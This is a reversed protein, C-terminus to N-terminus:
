TEDGGAPTGRECYERVARLGGLSFRTFHDILDITMETTISPGAGLRQRMLNHHLAHFCPGIVSMTSARVLDEPVGPGVIERVIGEMVERQPQVADQVVEHLLGTPNIMEMAMIRVAANREDLMRTMLAKLRGHLRTEVPADASVGGDGPHRELAQHFSTRWTEAYLKEKGGFHYNIAAINAQAQECIEAVTAGRYGKEAFVRAASELLRERTDVGQTDHRHSM